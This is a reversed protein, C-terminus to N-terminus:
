KRRYIVADQVTAVRVYHDAVYRELSPYRSLPYRRWHHLDAPATDVVLVPKWRELDALLIEFGHPVGLSDELEPPLDRGLGIAAYGTIYHCGTYRTAALREAAVYLPPFYGWVFVREDPNTHADIYAAIEDYYRLPEGFWHQV